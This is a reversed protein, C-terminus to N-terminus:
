VLGDRLGRAIADSRTSVGLKRYISRLQTKVTNRSVQLAIAIEGAGPSRVLEALVIRERETLDAQRAAPVFRFPVDLFDRGRPDLAALEERDELPIVGFAARLGHREAIGLARSFADAPSSGLRLAASAELLLLSLRPAATLRSDSRHAAGFAALSTWRGRQFLLLAQSLVLRPRAAVSGSGIVRAAEATRGQALLLDARLARLVDALGPTIPPVGRKEGMGASLHRLAEEAGETFWLLRTGVELLMPWREITAWRPSLIELEHSAVDLDLRELAVEAAALHLPNAYVTGVFQAAGTMARVEDIARAARHTEGLRAAALARLSVVHLQPIWFDPSDFLAPRQALERSADELQDLNILTSSRQIHFFSRLQDLDPDTDDMAELAGSADAFAQPVEDWRGLQRLALAALGRCWAAEVPPGGHGSTREECAEVTRRYAAAAQPWRGRTSHSVAVAYGLLPDRARAAAPVVALDPGQPGLIETIGGICHRLARGAAAWDRAEVAAALARAHDGHAAHWVALARYAAREADPDAALEERLMRRVLLHFRFERVGGAKEWTGLGRGALGTFLERSRPEVGLAEALSMSFTDVVSVARLRDFGPLDAVADRLLGHVVDADATAGRGGPAEFSSPVSPARRRRELVARVGFPWGDTADWVTRVDLPSLKLDLRAALASAEDVTFRLAEPGVLITDLRAATSVDGVLSTVRTGVLLRLGPARSVMTILDREVPSGALREFEDIVVSLGGPVEGAARGLAAVFGPGVERHQALPEIGGVPGIAETLRGALMGWFDAPDVVAGATVWVLSTSAAQHHAWSSLLASKGYGSGAQLVVLPESEAGGLLSLLRPRDLHSPTSRPLGTVDTPSGGAGAM